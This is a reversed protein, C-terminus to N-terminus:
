DGGSVGLLRKFRKFQQGNLPKTLGDATMDQTSKYIPKVTGDEMDQRQYHYPVAIHKTRIRFKSDEAVTKASQNDAYIPIPLKVPPRLAHMFQCLYVAHNVTNAQGIYETKTTSVAV